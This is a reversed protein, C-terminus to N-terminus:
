VGNRIRYVRAKAHPTAASFVLAYSFTGYKELDRQQRADYEAFDQCGELTGCEVLLYTDRSAVAASLVSDPRYYDLGSIVKWRGASGFAGILLTRDRPLTELFGRLSRFTSAVETTYRRTAGISIAASGETGAGAVRQSRLYALASVALLLSALGILPTRPKGAMRLAVPAAILSAGGYFFVWLLPQYPMLYRAASPIIPM